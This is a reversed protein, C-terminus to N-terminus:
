PSCERISVITHACPLCTGTGVGAVLNYIMTGRTTDWGLFGHSLFYQKRQKPTAWIAGILSRPETTEDYLVAFEFLPDNEKAKILCREFNTADLSRELDTQRVRNNIAARDLLKIGPYADGYRGQIDNIILSPGAGHKRLRQVDQM